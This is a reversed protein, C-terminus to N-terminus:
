SEHDPTGDFYRSWWSETEWDDFPVGYGLRRFLVEARRLLHGQVRTSGETVVLGILDLFDSTPIDFEPLPRQELEWRLYKYYPVLRRDHIAFAAQLFPRVSESAELRGGLADGLEYCRVSRAVQNLYWDLSGGVYGPMVNAPVRGKERSAAVLRGGTRDVVFRAIWWAYRDWALSSGWEAHQEFSDPTYIKLDVGPPTAELLGAFLDSHGDAVFLGLDYDSREDELGAARSGTVALGLAHPETRAREVLEEFYAGAEEYM